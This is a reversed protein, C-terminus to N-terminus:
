WCIRLVLGLLSARGRRRLLAWIPLGVFALCLMIRWGLEGYHGARCPAGGLVPPIAFGCMEFPSSGLAFVWEGLPNITESVAFVAGMGALAADLVGAIARPGTTWHRSAM